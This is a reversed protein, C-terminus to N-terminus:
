SYVEPNLLIEKALQMPISIYKKELYDVVKELVEKSDPSLAEIEKSFVSTMAQERPDVVAFM